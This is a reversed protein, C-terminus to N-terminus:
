HLLEIKKVPVEPQAQEKCARTRRLVTNFTSSLAQPYSNEKKKKKLASQRQCRHRVQHEATAADMAFHGSSCVRTRM